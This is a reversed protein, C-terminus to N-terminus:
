RSRVRQTGEPESCMRWLSCRCCCFLLKFLSTSLFQFSQRCIANVVFLKRRYVNLPDNSALVFDKASHANSKNKGSLCLLYLTLTYIAKIAHFPFDFFTWEIICTRACVCVGLSRSLWVMFSFRFWNLIQRSKMWNSPHNSPLLHGTVRELLSVECYKHACM